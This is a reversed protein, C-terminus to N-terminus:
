LQKKSDELLTLTVVFISCKEVLFHAWFARNFVKYIMSPMVSSFQVSQVTSRFVRLIINQPSILILIKQSDETSLKFGQDARVLKLQQSESNLSSSRVTAVEYGKM